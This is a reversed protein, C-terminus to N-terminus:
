VGPAGPLPFRQKIKAFLRDRVERYADLIQERAGTALTPDPTPWYEVNIAYSHAIELAKHQAEPALTVILDFSLDHLDDISVPVHGSIDIGMEEMVAVAFPDPEGPRVGASEVYIRHGTLHKLLAAAM